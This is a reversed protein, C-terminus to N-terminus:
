AVMPRARGLLPLWSESPADSSLAQVRVGRSPLSAIAAEVPSAFERLWRQRQAPSALDIEVRHGDTSFPVASKPPTTELPDTLLLVVVEHHQALAPWRREPIDSISRPDALLVVRSGPRLLRQAHDLAITLGADEEPPQSYWRVLADLVRLAGRAGAAPTIPPERVSGRLAAIRDGDRAAAWAAVAGARAAQASKFRVRTGFYLSPATDAVILTLREREAQFLKTHARGTRATLRWDIHRADDGAVYDRSEAYEMGRGRLPSLAHGTVGHRGLKASRRGNASGRLAVLDSLSPSIGNDSGVGAKAPVGQGDM